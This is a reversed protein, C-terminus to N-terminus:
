VWFSLYYNLLYEGFFIYLFAGITIFVGFPLINLKALEEQNISKRKWFLQGGQFCLALLSSFFLVFFLGESYVFAGVATIYKIDGGGLGIKKKYRLYYYALSWFLFFGISAGLISSKWASEILPMFRTDEVLFSFIIGLPILPLSIVDPIIYHKLDIFIIVLGCCFFVINKWLMWDLQYNNHIFFCLFGLGTISEVLPYQFSIKQSCYRCEGRLFIFSLIPINDYFRITKRCHPCHSRPFIVSEHAPLRIIVVNLFSGFIAGLFLPFFIYVCFDGVYMFWGNIMM